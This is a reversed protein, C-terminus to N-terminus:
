FGGTLTQLSSIALRYRGVADDYVNRAQILTNQADVVELVSSEGAQYRLTTLRLSETALDAAHRNADVASRAALAENYFQYLNGALQRQTQTLGVQAERERFQSQRLRSRLTGWDWVPINITATVFYGLNPLIGKEPNAAVTSHLAFANAEIGYDTEIFGSPLFANRAARVDFSAQRLAENAARLDPNQNEAMTQADRFPPLAPASDLDDVVTFNENVGPFLLVALSLRANEMALTSDDFAQKQQQYQLDAKVTDSHAAQGAREQDQTIQLFRSAQQVAQQSTAYKRETTVLGYYNRTVTVALGRHAVELKARAFAEAAQSRKYGTALITGPSLDQSIIGWQRYVHVGDNTVFRGSPLTGNGQTGLYQTRETVLPLRANKAQARDENAILSDLLATQYVLDLKQAMELADEFTIVIPAATQGAPRVLQLTPTTGQAKLQQVLVM